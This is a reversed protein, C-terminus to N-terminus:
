AIAARDKLTFDVWTRMAIFDNIDSEIGAECLLLIIKKQLGAPDKTGGMLAEFLSWESNL